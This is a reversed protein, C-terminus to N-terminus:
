NKFSVAFFFYGNQHHQLLRVLFGSDFGIGLGQRARRDTTWTDCGNKLPLKRVVLLLLCYEAECGWWPTAHDVLLTSTPVRSRKRIWHCSELVM